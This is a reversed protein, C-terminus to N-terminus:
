VVYLKYDPDIESTELRFAKLQKIDGLRFEM